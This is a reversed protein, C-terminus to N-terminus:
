SQHANRELQPRYAFWLLLGLMAGLMAGALGTVLGNARVVLAVHTDTAGISELLGLSRRRRQALVTFGGIAVLAILLMAFTLVALSITEPNLSSAQAVTAPTLVNSGITDPNVRPANFAGDDPHHEFRGRRFSPSSTSFTRLTRSSASWRRTGGIRALQQRDEFPLGLCRREDGGSREASESLARLPALADAQRFTRKPEPGEVSVHQDVRPDIGDRERHCRDLRLPAAFVCNARSPASEIRFAPRMRLPASAWTPSAPTNTAVASGVIAAAVALTVLALILFQQRWERRFLRWSWQLVALRAPLGGNKAEHLDTRLVQDSQPKLISESM